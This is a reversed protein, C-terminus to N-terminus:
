LRSRRWSSLRCRWGREDDDVDDDVGGDVHADGDDDDGGADDVFDDDDAVDGDDGVYVYYAVHDCDRGYAGHADIVTMLMMAM